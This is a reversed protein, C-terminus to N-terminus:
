SPSRRCFRRAGTLHMDNITQGGSLTAVEDVVPVIHPRNVKGWSFLAVGCSVMWCVEAYASGEPAGSKSSMLYHM